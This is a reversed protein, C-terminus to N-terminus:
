VYIAYYLLHLSHGYVLNNICVCDNAIVNILAEKDPKTFSRM